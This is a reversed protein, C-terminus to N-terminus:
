RCWSISGASDPRGCAAALGARADLCHAIAVGGALELCTISRGLLAGARALEGRDREVCGLTILPQASTSGREGLADWLQLTEQLFSHAAEYEHGFYSVHGLVKLAQAHIRPYGAEILAHGLKRM